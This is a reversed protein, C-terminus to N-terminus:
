VARSPLRGLRDFATMHRRPIAQAGRTPQLGQARALTEQFAELAQASQPASVDSQCVQQRSELGGAARLFVHSYHSSGHKHQTHAQVSRRPCM